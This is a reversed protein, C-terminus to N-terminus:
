QKLGVLVDIVQNPDARPGQVWTASAALASVSLLALKSWM